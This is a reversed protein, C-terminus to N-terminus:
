YMMDDYIRLESEEVFNHPIETIVKNQYLVTLGVDAAVDLYKQAIRRSIPRLRLDMGKAQCYELINRFLKMGEGKRKVACILHVTVTQSHVETIAFGFITGNADAISWVESSQKKALKRVYAEDIDNRCMVDGWKLIRNLVATRLEDRQVPSAFIKMPSVLNRVNPSM